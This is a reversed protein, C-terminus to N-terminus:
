TYDGDTPCHHSFGPHRGDLETQRDCKKKCNPCEMSCNQYIDSM